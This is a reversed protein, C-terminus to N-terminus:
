QSGSWAPRRVLPFAVATMLLRALTGTSVIPPFGATTGPVPGSSVAQTGILTNSDDRKPPVGLATFLTNGGWRTGVPRVGAGVSRARRVSVGAQPRLPESLLRAGM